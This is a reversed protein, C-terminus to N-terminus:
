QLDVWGGDSCQSAEKNLLLVFDGKLRLWAIWITKKAFYPLSATISLVSRQPICKMITASFALWSGSHHVQSKMLKFCGTSVTSRQDNWISIVWKKRECRQEAIWYYQFLPSFMIKVSTCSLIIVKTLSDRMCALFLNIAVNHLYFTLNSSDLFSQTM